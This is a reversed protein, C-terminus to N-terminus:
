PAPHAKRFAEHEAMEKDFLAQACGLARAEDIDPLQGPGRLTNVIWQLGHAPSELHGAVVAARMALINREMCDAFTVARRESKAAAAHLRTVEARIQLYLGTAAEHKADTEAATQEFLGAGLDDCAEVYRNVLAMLDDATM